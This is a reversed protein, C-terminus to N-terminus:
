DRGGGEDARFNRQIHAVLAVGSASGLGPFDFLGTGIVFNPNIEAPCPGTFSIEKAREVGDRRSAGSHSISAHNFDHGAPCALPGEEGVVFSHCEHRRDTTDIDPNALRPM